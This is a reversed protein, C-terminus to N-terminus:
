SKPHGTIYRDVGAPHMDLGGLHFLISRRFREKNCFGCARCKIRQISANKGKLPLTARRIAYLM